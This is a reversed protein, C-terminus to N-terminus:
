QAVIAARMPAGYHFFCGFLYTGAQDVQITQSSTGAQLAGSSFGGSLTNGHQTLASINFPSGAPFQTANPIATATHAFSDTNMFRIQSGVPVNTIPPTFGGSEGYPTKVPQSLTLNIDITIGGTGGSSTPIGGATCAALLVLAIPTLSRRTM